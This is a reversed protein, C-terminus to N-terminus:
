TCSAQAPLNTIVVSLAGRKERIGSQSTLSFSLRNMIAVTYLVTTNACDSCWASRVLMESKSVL